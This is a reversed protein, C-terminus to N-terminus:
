ENEDREKLPKWYYIVDGPEHEASVGAHKDPDYKVKQILGCEVARDAMIEADCEFWGEKICEKTMALMERGFQELKSM